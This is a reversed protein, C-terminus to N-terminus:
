NSLNIRGLKKYVSVIESLSNEDFVLLSFQNLWFIIKLTSFDNNGSILELSDLELLLYM